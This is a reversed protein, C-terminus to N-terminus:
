DGCYILWMLGILRNSFALNVSGTLGLKGCKCCHGGCPLTEM